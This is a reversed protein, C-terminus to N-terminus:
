EGPGRRDPRPDRSGFGVRILTQHRLSARMCAARPGLLHEYPECGILIQAAGDIGAFCAQRYGTQALLKHTMSPDLNRGARSREIRGKIRLEAPDPVVDVLDGVRQVAVQRRIDHVSVPLGAVQQVQQSLQVMRLLLLAM